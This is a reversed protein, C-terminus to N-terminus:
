LMWALPGYRHPFAESLDLHREEWGEVNLQDDTHMDSIADPRIYGDVLKRSSELQVIMIYYETSM